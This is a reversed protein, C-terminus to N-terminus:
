FFRRLIQSIQLLFPVPVTIHRYYSPVVRNEVDEKMKNNDLNFTSSEPIEGIGSLHNGEPDKLEYLTSGEQHSPLMVDDDPTVFPQNDPNPAVIIGPAMPPPPPTGVPEGYDLSYTLGGSRDFTYIYFKLNDVVHLHDETVFINNVSAFEGPGQGKQGYEHIIEGRGNLELIKGHGGDYVFLGSGNYRLITPVGLLNDELEVLTKFETLETTEIESSSLTESRCGILIGVIFIGISIKAEKCFLLSPKLPIVPM